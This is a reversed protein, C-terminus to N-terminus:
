PWQSSVLVPILVSPYAQAFVLTYITVCLFCLFFLGLCDQHNLMCAGRLPSLSALYSASRDGPFVTTCFLFFGQLASAQSTKALVCIHINRIERCLASLLLCPLIPPLVLDINVLTQRGREKEAQSSKLTTTLDSRRTGAALPFERCSRM